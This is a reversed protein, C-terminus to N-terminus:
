ARLGKQQQKQHTSSHSKTPKPSTPRGKRAEVSLLSPDPNLPPLRRPTVSRTLKKSRVMEVTVAKQHQNQQHQYRDYMMVLKSSSKKQGLDQRLTPLSVLMEPIHHQHQKQHQQQHQQQQQHKQHHEHHHQVPLSILMAPNQQKYQTPLSVLVAPASILFLLVAQRSM